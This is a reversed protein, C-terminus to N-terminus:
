FMEGKGTYLEYDTDWACNFVDVESGTIHCVDTSNSTLNCQDIVNYLKDLLQLKYTTDMDMVVVNSDSLVCIGSVFYLKHYSWSNLSYKKVGALRYVYDRRVASMNTVDSTRRQNSTTNIDSNVSTGNVVKGLTELSSLVRKIGINPTFTLTADETISELLQEAEQVRRKGKKM